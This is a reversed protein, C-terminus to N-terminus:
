LDDLVTEVATETRNLIKAEQAVSSYKYAGRLPPVPTYQLASEPELVLSKALRLQLQFFYIDFQM